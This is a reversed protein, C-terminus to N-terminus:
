ASEIAYTENFVAVVSYTANYRNEEVGASDYVVYEQTFISSNVVIISGSRLDTVNAIAAPSTLNGTTNWISCHKTVFDKTEEDVLSPNDGQEERSSVSCIDILASAESLHGRPNEFWDSCVHKPSISLSLLFM